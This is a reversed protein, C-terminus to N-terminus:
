MNFYKLEDEFSRIRFTKLSKHCMRMFPGSLVLVEEGRADDDVASLSRGRWSQFAAAVETATVNINRTGTCTVLGLSLQLALSTVRGGVFQVCYFLV